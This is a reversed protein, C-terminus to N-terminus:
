TLLNSYTLLKSTSSWYMGYSEAPHLPTLAAPGGFASDDGAAAATAATATLPRHNLLAGVGAQRGPLLRPLLGAELPELLLGLGLELELVGSTM